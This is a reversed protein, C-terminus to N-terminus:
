MCRLISSPRMNQCSMASIASSLRL